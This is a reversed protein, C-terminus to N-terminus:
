TSVLLVMKRREQSGRLVNTAFGQNTPPGEPHPGQDHETEEECNPGQSEPTRSAIAIPPMSEVETLGGVWAVIRRGTAASRADFAAEVNRDNVNPSAALAEALQETVM